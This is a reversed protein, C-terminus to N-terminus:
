QKSLYFVDQEQSPHASWLRVHLRVLSHDIKRPKKNPMKMNKNGFYCEFTKVNSNSPCSWQGGDQYKRFSLNVNQTAKPPPISVAKWFSIPLMFIQIMFAADQSCTMFNETFWGIAPARSRWLMWQHIYRIWRQAKGTFLVEREREWIINITHLM